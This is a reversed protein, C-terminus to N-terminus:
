ARRFISAIPGFLGTFLVEAAVGTIDAGGKDPSEAPAKYSAITWKQGAGGKAKGVLRGDDDTWYTRESPVTKSDSATIYTGDYDWRYTSGAYRMAGCGYMQTRSGVRSVPKTIGDKEAAALYARMEKVFKKDTGDLKGEGYFALLACHDNWRALGKLPARRQWARVPAEAKLAAVMAHETRRAEKLPEGFLETLGLAKVHDELTAAGSSEMLYIQQELMRELDQPQAQEMELEIEQVQEAGAVVSREFFTQLEENSMPRGDITASIGKAGKYAEVMADLHRPLAQLLKGYKPRLEELLTAQRGNLAELKGEFQKGERKWRDLEAEYDQASQATWEQPILADLRKAVDGTADNLMSAYWERLRADEAAEALPDSYMWVSYNGINQLERVASSAIQNFPQRELGDEHYRYHWRTAWSGDDPGLELSPPFTRSLLYKTGEKYDSFDVSGGLRVRLCRGTDQNVITFDGAPFKSM